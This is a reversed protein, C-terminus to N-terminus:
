KVFADIKSIIETSVIKMAALHDGSYNLFDKPAAANAFVKEAQAYPVMKDEKSHIFLKPINIAKIDEEASYPFPVQRILSEQAPAFHVALDTFSSITGDLVLAHIKVPNNTTLNTAVQTGMSAGYVIIKQKKVEPQALAYDLFKQADQQINQHTPTGSSKGYGRFGIMMVQYGAKVLPKTIELYSTPNGGAGQFFLITAKSKGEPKLFLGVLTDKEVPISFESFKVGTVPVFKKNPQYFKDDFQAFSFSSVLIAFLLFKTKM